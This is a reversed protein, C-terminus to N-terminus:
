TNSFITQQGDSIKSGYFITQKFSTINIWENLEAVVQLLVSNYIAM